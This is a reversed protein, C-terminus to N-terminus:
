TNRSGTERLRQLLVVLLGSLACAGLEGDLIRGVRAHVHHRCRVDAHFAERDILPIVEARVEASM